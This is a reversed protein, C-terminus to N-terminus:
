RNGDVAAVETRVEVWQSRPISDVLRAERKWWSHRLGCHPCRSHALVDPVGNFTDEDVLIGTSFERGTNPCTILMVSM